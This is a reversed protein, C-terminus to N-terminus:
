QWWTTEDEGTRQEACDPCLISVSPECNDDATIYARWGRETRAAAAECWDCFLVCALGLVPLM